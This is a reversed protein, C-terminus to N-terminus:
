LLVCIIMHLRGASASRKGVLEGKMQVDAIMLSMQPGFGLRSDYCASIQLILYLM